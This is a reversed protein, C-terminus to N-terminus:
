VPKIIIRRYPEEGASETAVDSRKQLELHVIRREYSPMPRLEQPSRTLAVEDAYNRAIERLYDLKKKKYDNIDLDIFLKEDLGKKIIKNLLQQFCVLTKGGEGILVQPEDTKLLVPLTENEIEGLEVSVDFSTKKFFEKVIKEIKKDKKDFMVKKNKLIIRKL